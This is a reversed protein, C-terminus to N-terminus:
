ITLNKEEYEQLFRVLQKRCRPCEDHPKLGSSALVMSDQIGEGFTQVLGNPAPEHNALHVVGNKDQIKIPWM